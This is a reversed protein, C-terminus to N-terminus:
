KQEKITAIKDLYRHSRVVDNSEMSKFVDAIASREIDTVIQDNWLYTSSDLLGSLPRIHDLAVSAIASVPLDYVIALRQIAVMSPTNVEGSEIKQLYELKLGSQKSVQTLALSRGNRIDTIWEAFVNEKFHNYHLEYDHIKAEVTRTILEYWATSLKSIQSSVEDWVTYFEEFLLELDSYAHNADGHISADNLQFSIKRLLKLVPEMTGVLGIDELRQKMFVWDNYYPYNIAYARYLVMHTSQELVYRDDEDLAKIEDLLELELANLESIGEIAPSLYLFEVEDILEAITRIKLERLVIWKDENSHTTLYKM